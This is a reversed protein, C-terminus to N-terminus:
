GSFSSADCIKPRTNSIPGSCSLFFSYAPTAWLTRVGLRTERLAADVWTTRVDRVADRTQVVGGLSLAALRRAEDPPVGREVHMQIERELHFALEEDVEANIARRRLIGRAFAFMRALM